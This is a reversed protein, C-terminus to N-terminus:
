MFAVIGLLMRQALFSSYIKVVVVIVVRRM